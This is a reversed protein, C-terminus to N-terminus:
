VGNGMSAVSHISDHLEGRAEVPRWPGGRAEEPRWPGGRAEEFRFHLDSSFHRGDAAMTPMSQNRIPQNMTAMTLKSIVNVTFRQDQISDPFKAKCIYEGTDRKHLSEFILSLTDEGSNETYVRGFVVFRPTFCCYDVWWFWDCDTKSTILCCCCCCCCCCCDSQFPFNTGIRTVRMVFQLPTRM